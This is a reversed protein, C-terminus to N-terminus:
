SSFDRSVSAPGCWKWWGRRVYTVDRYERQINWFQVDVQRSNGNLLVLVPIGTM